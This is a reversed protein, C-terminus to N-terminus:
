VVFIMRESLIIYYSLFGVKIMSTTGYNVKQGEDSMNSIISPM